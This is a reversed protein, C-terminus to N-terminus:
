GAGVAVLLREAWWGLAEKREELYEYRNYVAAVGSVVGGSHNLIKEVVHPPFKAAMHTAASRRFDHVVFPASIAPFGEIEELIKCERDLRRKARAFGSVSTEGTTSFILGSLDTKHEKAERFLQVALPSLPVLHPKGNKTRSGPITWLGGDFDVEAWSSEAVERLRCGTLILLQYIHQFPWGLRGSAAWVTRIEEISLARERSGERAPRHLGAAPNVEIIGRAAAFALLKRIIAFTRNAAVPSGRELIKDTVKTIDSKKVERINMNGIIPIINKELAREVEDKWKARDNIESWSHLKLFDKSVAEVTQGEAKKKGAPDEGLRAARLVRAAEERAAEPTWAPYSGITIRKSAAARGGGVRFQAFFTIRLKPTIKVGFGKISEDYIYKDRNPAAGTQISNLLKRTIKM